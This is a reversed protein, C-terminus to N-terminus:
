SIVTRLSSTANRSQQMLTVQQRLITHAQNIAKRQTSTTDQKAMITQEQEVNNICTDLFKSDQQELLM